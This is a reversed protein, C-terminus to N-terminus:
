RDHDPGHGHGHGHDDHDRDRDRDKERLRNEKREMKQRRKVEKWRYHEPHEKIIYYREERSDRIVVQDHHGRYTEYRTRYDNHHLYPKPENIVVKNVRYLDFQRYRPPLNSSTIWRSGEMYIFRHKPVYYYAEIDPIYYYDVHDYGVPGWIPQSSINVSVAVQGDTKENSLISIFLITLLIIKKM